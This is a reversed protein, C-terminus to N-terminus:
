FHEGGISTVGNPIIVSTLNICGMFAAVGIIIIDNPISIGTLTACGTLLPTGTNFAYEPITTITSGCLDLYVYKGAASNLTTFLTAFDDEDDINLAINYPTDKDNATQSTLWTGL